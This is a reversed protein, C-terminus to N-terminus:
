AGKPAAPTKVYVKKYWDNYIAQTT